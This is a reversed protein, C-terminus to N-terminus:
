HVTTRWAARDAVLLGAALACWLGGTLWDMRAADAGAFGLVAYSFTGQAVHFVITLLASGGTRNFLWVYVFTIAFTVPIAVPALMGSTVLPLHWLAVLPALVLTAALPSRTTQMEPVAYARWGPEEGLPGDLPDVFRLAAFLLVSAWPVQSLVPSPAGWFAVNATSALALVALPTGVAVVWWVWGVRWRLLRAGWARYGRRGETVGIVVVAAVLPGCPFFATPSLGVLYLPWAWWSVLFALAFFAVVRHERTWDAIVARHTPTSPSASMVPEESVVPAVPGGDRSEPTPLLPGERCPKGQLRSNLARRLRDGSLDSKAIFGRASSTALRSGYDSSARSSVLVVAPGPSAGVLAEAVRFGDVDPLQVDLLVVDPRLVRAADIAAAGDAAEGVVDFGDDTLLRRALARFPAHDDVILVRASM